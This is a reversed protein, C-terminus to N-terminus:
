DQWSPVFINNQLAAPLVNMDIQEIQCQKIYPVLIIYGVQGPTPLTCQMTSPSVQKTQGLQKGIRFYYYHNSMCYIIIKISQRCIQVGYIDPFKLTKRDLRLTKTYDIHPYSHLICFITACGGLKKSASLMVCHSSIGLFNNKLYVWNQLYYNLIHYYVMYSLLYNAHCCQHLVGLNAPLVDSNGFELQQSIQSHFLPPPLLIVYFTMM